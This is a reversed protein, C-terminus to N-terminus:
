RNVQNGCTRSLKKKINFQLCFEYVIVYVFTNSVVLFDSIKRKLNCVIKM